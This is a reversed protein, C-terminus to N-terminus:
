FNALLLTWSISPCSWNRLWRSGIFKWRHICLFILQRILYEISNQWGPQAQSTIKFLYSIKLADAQNLYDISVWPYVKTLNIQIGLIPIHIHPYICKLVYHCSCFNFHLHLYNHRVCNYYCHIKEPITWPPLPPEFPNLSVSEVHVNQYEGKVLSHM